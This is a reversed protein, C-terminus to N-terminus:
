FDAFENVRKQVQFDVVQARFAPDCKLRSARDLVKLPVENTQGDQAVVVVDPKLAVLAGRHVLGNVRRLVVSDGPAYMPYTTALQENLTARYEAELKTVQEPARKPMAAMGPPQATVTGVVPQAAATEPSVIDASSAAKGPAQQAPPTVPGQAEGTRGHFLFTKALGALILLGFGWLVWQLMRPKQPNDLYRSGTRTDYGCQLCIVAEPPMTSECSPCRKGGDIGSGHKVQLKAAGEPRVGSALVVIQKGCQPCAISQGALKDPAAFVQGCHSCNVWIDSM